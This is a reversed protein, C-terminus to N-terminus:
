YFENASFSLCCSFLYEGASLWNFFCCNRLLFCYLTNSFLVHERHREIEALGLGFTAGAGIGIKGKCIAYPM